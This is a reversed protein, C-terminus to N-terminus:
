FGCYGWLNWYPDSTYVTVKIDEWQTIWYGNGYIVYSGLTWGSPSKAVLTARYGAHESIQIRAKAPWICYQQRSKNVAEAPTSLSVTLAIAAVGAIISNRKIRKM